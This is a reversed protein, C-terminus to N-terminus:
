QGRLAKRLQRKEQKQQQYAQYGPEGVSEVIRAKTNANLTDVQKKAASTDLEGDRVQRRIERRQDRDDQIIATMSQAQIENLGQSKAVAAIEAQARDDWKKRWKARREEWMKKSGTKMMEQLGNRFPEAELIKAPLSPPLDAVASISTGAGARRAAGAVFPMASRAEVARTSGPNELREVRRVLSRWDFTNGTAGPKEELSALRKKVSLLRDKLDQAQESVDGLRVMTYALAGTAGLAVAGLTIWGFFTRRSMM